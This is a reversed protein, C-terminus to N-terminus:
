SGNKPTDHNIVDSLIHLRPKQLEFRSLYQNWGILNAYLLPTIRSCFQSMYIHGCLALNGNEGTIAM